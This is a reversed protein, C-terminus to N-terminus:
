SRPTSATTAWPGATPNAVCGTLIRMNSGNVWGLQYGAATAEEVSHFRATAQRVQALEDQSTAAPGAHDHVAAPSATAVRGISAVAVVSAAVLLALALRKRRPKM